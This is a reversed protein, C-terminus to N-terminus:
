IPPRGAQPKLHKDAASHQCWRAAAAISVVNGAWSDAMAKVVASRGHAALLGGLMMQYSLGSSRQLREVQQHLTEESMKSRCIKCSIYSYAPTSASAHQHTLRRMNLGGRGPHSSGTWTWGTCGPAPRRSGIKQCGSERSFGPGAVVLNSVVITDEDPKRTLWRKFIRFAIILQQQSSVAAVARDAWVVPCLYFEGRIRPRKRRRAPKTAQAAAVAEPPLTLKSLDDFPDPPQV